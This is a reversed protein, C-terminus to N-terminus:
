SIVRVAKKVAVPRRVVPSRVEEVVQKEEEAVAEKEPAEMLAQIVELPRETVDVESMEGFAHFRDCLGRVPDEVVLMRRKSKKDYTLLVISQFMPAMQDRLQGPLSPSIEILAGPKPAGAICTAIMHFPGNKLDRVFTKMGEVLKYWDQQSTTGTKRAYEDEFRGAIDTLSDVVVYKYGGTFAKLVLQSEPPLAVWRGTKPDKVRKAVTEIDLNKVNIYDRAAHVGEESEIGLTKGLHSVSYALTTKGARGPGMLIVQARSCGEMYEDFRV